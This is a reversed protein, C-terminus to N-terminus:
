VKGNSKEKGQNLWTELEKQCDPCLDYRDSGYGHHYHNITIDPVCARTYLKGCVDCKYANAM